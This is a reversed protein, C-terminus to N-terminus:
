KRENDDAHNKTLMGHLQFPYQLAYPLHQKEEQQRGNKIWSPLSVFCFAELPLHKQHGEDDPTQISKQHRIIIIVFSAPSKFITRCVTYPIVGCRNIQRSAHTMAM